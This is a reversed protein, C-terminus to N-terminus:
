VFLFRVLLHYVIFVHLFNRPYILLVSPLDPEMSRSAGFLDGLLASGSCVCFCHVALKLPKWGQRQGSFAGPDVKRPPDGLRKDSRQRWYGRHSM